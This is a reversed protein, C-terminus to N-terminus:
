PKLHGAGALWVALALVAIGIVYSAGKLVKWGVTLAVQDFVKQAAREAAMEIIQELQEESLPLPWQSKESM